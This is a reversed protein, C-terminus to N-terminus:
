RNALSAAWVEFGPAVKELLPLISETTWDGSSEWPLENRLRRLLEMGHADHLEAARVNLLNQYWAYTQAFQEPALERMFTWDLSLVTPTYGAVFEAWEARSAEAWEVDHAHVFSYAFYTALLEELWRVSSYPRPSDPHLYRKNALHGFEHLLVFRVRRANAASDPGTILVGENLSAPATMLSEDVWGWPMGYPEFEGGEYPVFWQTPGLVALHVPFSVGFEREFFAAAQESLTALTEAYARDTTAFHAAVRGIQMSELGLAEVRARPSPNQSYASSVSLSNLAFVLAVTCLASGFLRPPSGFTRSM